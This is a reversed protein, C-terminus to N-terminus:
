GKKGASQTGANPFVKHLGRMNIATDQARNVPLGPKFVRNGNIDTYGSVIGMAVAEEIEDYFPSAKPVDIFTPVDPVPPFTFDIRGAPHPTWVGPIILPAEDPNGGMGARNFGGPGPIQHCDGYVELELNGSAAFGDGKWFDGSNLDDTHGFRIVNHHLLAGTPSYTFQQLRTKNNNNGVFVLKLVQLNGAGDIAFQRQIVGVRNSRGTVPMELTVAGLLDWEADQAAQPGTKGAAHAALGEKPDDPMWTM